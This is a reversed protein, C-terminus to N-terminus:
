AKVIGATPNRKLARAPWRVNPASLAWNLSAHSIWLERRRASV